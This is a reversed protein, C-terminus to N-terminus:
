LQGTQLILCLHLIQDVKTHNQNKGGGGLLQCIFEHMCKNTHM